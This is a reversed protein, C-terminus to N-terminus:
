PSQLRIGCVLGNQYSNVMDAAAHRRIRYRLGIVAVPLHCAHGIAVLPISVGPGTMSVELNVAGSNGHPIALLKVRAFAKKALSCITKM